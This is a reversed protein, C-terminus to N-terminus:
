WVDEGFYTQFAYKTGNCEPVAYECSSWDHRLDIMEEATRNFYYHYAAGAEGGIPDDFTIDCMYWEGDLEVANWKHGGGATGVVGTCRIGVRACLVQFAESYSECVGYKNVLLGYATWNDNALGDWKAGLNYQGDILIRDYVLREKVVDPADSPITAAIREMEADFVAKKARIKDRLEDTLEGYGYGCYEGKTNGVAYYFGLAYNGNGKGMICVRNCAYFYEPNDFLFMYYVRYNDNEKLDIDVDIEAELNRVAKDIRRYTAKLEDSLLSYLYRDTCTLAKHQQRSAYGYTPRTVNNTTTTPQTTTTTPATTTTIAQTTKENEATATAQTTTQTTPATTTTTTTPRTPPVMYTPVAPRQTTTPKTVITPRPVVVTTPATLEVVTTNEDAQTTTVDYEDELWDSFDEFSTVTTTPVDTTVGTARDFTDTVVRCAAFSVAMVLVLGIALAKKM